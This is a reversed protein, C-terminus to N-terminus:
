PVRAVGRRMLLQLVLDEESSSWGQDEAFDKRLLGVFFVM